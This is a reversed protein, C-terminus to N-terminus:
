AIKVALELDISSSELMEVVRNMSPRNMQATQVCWLGVVVMKKVLERTDSSIDFVSNCFQDLTNM